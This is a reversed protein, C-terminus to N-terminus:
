KIEKEYPEIHINVKSFGLRKKLLTLLRHSIAHSEDLPIKKDLLLHFSLVDIGETTIIEIGHFGKVNKNKALFMDLTKEIRVKERLAAEKKLDVHVICRGLDENYIKKEISDAVSHAQELTLAPSIEIHLSVIRNKGYSHIEIDHVGAVFQFSSAIVKVKEYVQDPARKGILNDVFEKGMKFSWYIILFAILLGLISDVYIFGRKVFFLGFAVIFTTIFDTYHHFADAALIDSSAKKSARQTIFGLFFKIISISIMTGIIFFNVNVIKPHLFRLFSEKLFSLGILFLFLSVIIGGVDEVRGHGFPHDSDAPKKSLHLSFVVVGTAIIDRLSDVADTLISISKSQFGFIFQIVSLVFNVGISLWAVRLSLLHYNDQNQKM